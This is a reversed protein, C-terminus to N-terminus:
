SPQVQYTIILKHEHLTKRYTVVPITSCFNLINREFHSRNNSKLSVTFAFKSCNIMSLKNTKNLNSKRDCDIHM